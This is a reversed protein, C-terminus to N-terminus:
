RPSGNWGGGVKEVARIFGDVSGVTELVIVEEPVIGQPDTQLRTHRIELAQQLQEFRSALREAQREPSPRQFGSNRGYKKRRAAPEVPEPLILLPRDPM